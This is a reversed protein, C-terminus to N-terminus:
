YAALEGTAPGQLDHLNLGALEVLQHPIVELKVKALGRNRFALKKAAAQSLDVLRKNRYHLRDTIRVITWRGNSRNTIKVYTGLPLSNNAATMKKNSFIRGNAMRHGNFKSSYFSAVGYQVPKGNIKRHVTRHHAAHGSHRQAMAPSIAIFIGLLLCSIVEISIIIHNKTM